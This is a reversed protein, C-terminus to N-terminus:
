AILLTARERLTSDPSRALVRDLPLAAGGCNGMRVLSEGELTLADDVWGSKPHRAVVSEAKAEAETWYTNAEAARDHAELSRAQHAFHEASWMANYYVCGTGLLATALVWRARWSKM